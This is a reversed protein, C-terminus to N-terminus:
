KTYYPCECYDQSRHCSRCRLTSPNISRVKVEQATCDNKCGCSIAPFNCDKCSERQSMLDGGTVGSSGFGGLGRASEPLKDVKQLLPTIFPVIVLQAVSQGDKLEVVQTPHLNKVFIRIEDRYTCDIIGLTNALGVDIKGSSSRPALLGVTHPPLAFFAGTPILKKEWPTLTRNGVISLDLGADGEHAIGAVNGTYEVVLSHHM